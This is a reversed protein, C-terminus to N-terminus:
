RGWRDAMMSWAPGFIMKAFRPISALLGLQALTLGMSARIVPFLNNMLGSETDDITRSAAITIVSRWRNPARKPPRVSSM